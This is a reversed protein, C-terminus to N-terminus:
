DNAVPRAIYVARGFGGSGDPDSVRATVRFLEGAKVGAPALPVILTGGATQVAVPQDNIWLKLNSSAGPVYLVADAPLKGEPVTMEFQYWGTTLSEKGNEDLWARVPRMRGWPGTGDVGELVAADPLKSAFWNATEGVDAADPAFSVKGPSMIPAYPVKYFELGIQTGYMNGEASMMSFVNHSRLEVLRDRIDYIEKALPWLETYDLDAGAEAPRHAITSCKVVLEGHRNGLDLVEIKRLLDPDGAAAARAKALLDAGKDFDEQTLLVHVAEWRGRRGSKPDFPQLVEKLDPRTYAAIMTKEWHDWYAGVYEAAPGFAQNYEQRLQEPDAATDWHMRALVYYTQGATAWAENLRDFDTAVIGNDLLLKMDSGMQSVDNWPIGISPSFSFSNPRFFLKQVGAKKWAMFNDRQLRQEAESEPYMNFGILGVLINPEIKMDIPAFKYRDYAYAVVMADPAVEALRRALKNYFFFYRNSLSYPLGDSKAGFVQDIDAGSWGLDQLQAETAEDLKVDLAKCAECQCFGGNGDNECANLFRYNPNEKRREVFQEILMDVLKDSTCCMKVFSKNYDPTPIGRHGDEQMAFVEPVTDIYEEYWQTFAHGYGFRQGYGMRMRKLWLQEEDVMVDYDAEKGEMYRATQGGRGGRGGRGGARNSRPRLSLRFHRQFLQPTEQIDLAGVEVTTRKPIAEGNPGPWLWRCGLQDELFDAVAYFTGTRVNNSSFPQKRSGADEGALILTGDLTKVIMTEPELTTTDIGKSKLLNSQGVLILTAQTEGLDKEAIIPVVAGTMKKLHYQLDRAAAQQSPMPNDGVVIVSVPQGDQVLTLAQASLATLMVAGVVLLM